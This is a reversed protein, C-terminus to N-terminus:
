PTASAGPQSGGSPPVTTTNPPTPPVPVPSTGSEPSQLGPVPPNGPPTEDGPPTVPPAQAEPSKEKGIDSSKGPPKVSPAEKKEVGFRKSTGSSQRNRILWRLMKSENIGILIDNISEYVSPDAILKGATGEGSNLKRATENLQNVLLRFEALTEDAFEKDSILRPVIGEGTQLGQSFGAIREATLQLNDVLALVKTRGQPDNLLTPLMGTGSEFSRQVNGMVSQLSGVSSNLSSTLQNAYADDYVLKGVLGKGSQVHDLVANTRNLTLLVTDVVKQKTEPQSTLEGILGEGRDIRGLINKLSYSMTVFNDVLDGGSAILADVDTAKQAPIISKAPLEALTPSGATIDVYSDGTLLGLKKLRARSDTRIRPAFKRDVMVSIQVTNEKPSEPLTIDKVVGITVGSLKVPNGEALGTVNTFHVGYETKRAFLKQESGIFFLFIMLSITSVAVLAGIRANRSSTKQVKTM